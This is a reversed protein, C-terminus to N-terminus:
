SSTYNPSSIIRIKPFFQFWAKGILFERGATGWIRSDNSNMRNDGVIFYENPPLVQDIPKEAFTQITVPIYSENLISGNILIKGAQLQVREGPLGVVRKIYKKHEPDGPFKLVVADGREPKGFNYQYRNIILYEGNKFNPEMSVGDVISITAIFFHCLMLLITVVIIWKTLEFICGTAYLTNHRVKELDQESFKIAQQDM